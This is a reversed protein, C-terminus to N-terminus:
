DCTSHLLIFNLKTETFHIKKANLQLAIALENSLFDSATQSSMFLICYRGIAISDILRHLPLFAACQLITFQRQQYLLLVACTPLSCLVFSPHFSATRYGNGGDVAACRGTVTDHKMHSEVAATYRYELRM